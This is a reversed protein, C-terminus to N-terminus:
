CSSCWTKDPLRPNKECAVCPRDDKSAQEYRRRWGYSLGGSIRMVIWRSSGWLERVDPAILRLLKSSVTQGAVIPSAEGTAIM